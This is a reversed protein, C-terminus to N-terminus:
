KGRNWGRQFRKDMPHQGPAIQMDLLQGCNDCRGFSVQRFCVPCAKYAIKGDRYWKQKRWVFKM